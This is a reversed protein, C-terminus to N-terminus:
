NQAQNFVVLFWRMGLHIMILINFDRITVGYKMCIKMLVNKSSLRISLYIKIMNTYLLCPWVAARPSASMIVYHHTEKDYVLFLIRSENVMLRAVGQIYGIYYIHYIRINCYFRTEYFRIDLNIKWQKVSFLVSKDFDIYEWRKM